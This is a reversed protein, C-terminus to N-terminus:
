RGKHKEKRKRQKLEFNRQKMEITRKKNQVKRELKKEEQQFKLAQQSKTGIGINQTQKRVERQMRKPNHKVKKSKTNSISFFHLNYSNRLVFDYIDYDKPESGFTTKSVYLRDDISYEFVGVWFPAEFFVTLQISQMNM